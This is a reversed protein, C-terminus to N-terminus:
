VRANLAPGIFQDLFPSAPPGRLSRRAVLLVQVVAAHASECDRWDIDAAPNDLLLQLLTEADDAPCDGILRITNADQLVVTL